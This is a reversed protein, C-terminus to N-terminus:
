AERPRRQGPESRPKRALIHFYLEEEGSKEVVSKGSRAGLMEAGDQLGRRVLALEMAESTPAPM